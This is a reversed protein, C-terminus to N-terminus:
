SVFGVVGCRFFMFVGLLWMLMLKGFFFICRMCCCCGVWCVGFFFVGFVDGFLVFWVIVWVCV